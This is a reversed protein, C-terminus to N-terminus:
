DRKPAEEDESDDEDDALIGQYDGKKKPAVKKKPPLRNSDDDPDDDDEEDFDGYDEEDDRVGVVRAGGGGTLEMSAEYDAASSPRWIIAVASLLVFTVLDEQVDRAWYLPYPWAIPLLGVASYIGAVIITTTFTRILCYHKKEEYSQGTIKLFDITAQSSRYVWVLLVLELVAQPVMWGLLRTSTMVNENNDHFFNSTEQSAASITSLLSMALVAAYAAAWLVIRAVVFGGTRLGVGTGISLAACLLLCRTFVRRAALIGMAVVVVTLFPCCLPKGSTNIELYAVFWTASSAAAVVLAATTMRQIPKLSYCCCRLLHLVLIVFYLLTLAAEFPLYGFYQAPLYGAPNKFAVVGDLVVEDADIEEEDSCLQIVVTQFGDTEVRYSGFLSGVSGNRHAFLQDTTKNASMNCANFKELEIASSSAVCMLVAQADEVVGFARVDVDVEISSFLETSTAKRTQPWPWSSSGFMFGESFSLRADGYRQKSTLKWRYADTVIPVVLVLFLLM